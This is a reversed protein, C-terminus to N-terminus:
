PPLDPLRRRQEADMAANISIRRQLLVDIRQQAKQGWVSTPEAAVVQKYRAINTYTENPSQQEMLFAANYANEGASPECAVFVFPLLLVTLFILAKM